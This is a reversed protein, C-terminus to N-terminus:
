EEDEKRRALGMVGLLLAGSFPDLAGGGGYSRRRSRSSSPSSYSPSAVNPAPRTFTKKRPQVQRSRVPAVARTQQARTETAVRQRNRREIGRAAFRDDSLLVMSTEDTVIQAAVGLDAITRNASAEAMRGEDRARQLDEVRAMAWLRELEPLDEDVAPLEFRVSYSRPTGSIRTALSLEAAGPEDYRGFVVLQQGHFLRRPAETVDRVPTGDFALKVDHLAQSKLRASVRYSHGGSARTITDMLPWNAQHGLLFGHIRVDTERVLKEFAARDTHGQNTNGDTVLVLHTARQKDAAALGAELAQYINTGGRTTLRTVKREGATRGAHDGHVPGRTLHDVRDDFALLQYRDLPELDQIARTVGDKLTGITGSMSGSIDLVFVHDGGTESILPLDVGPTLVAMFTGTGGESSRYAHVEVRGPLDEALRYYLVLDKGDESTARAHWDGGEGKTTSEIRATGAVRLDAIEWASRVTADLEVKAAPRVKAGSWFSSAADGAEGSPQNSVPYRYRVVGTDVQLPQYYTFDVSVEGSAPIRAVRFRYQRHGDQEALGADNGSDKEEEYTKEAEAKRQVEGTLVKEGCRITMAALASREPLPLEYTAELAVPNPNTWIQNVTTRAFGDTIRVRVQHTEARLEALNRTTHPAPRVAERPAREDRVEEHVKVDDMLWSGAAQAQSTPTALALAALLFTTQIWRM